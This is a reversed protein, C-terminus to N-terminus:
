IYSRCPLTHTRSHMKMAGPTAYQKHCLRCTFGGARTDNAAGLACCPQGSYDTGDVQRQRHDIGGLDDADGTCFRRYERMQELLRRAADFVAASGTDALTGAASITTSAATSMSSFGSSDRSWNVLNNTPRRNSDVALAMDTSPQDCVTYHGAIVAPLQPSPPRGDMVSQHIRTRSDSHITFHVGITSSVLRKWLQVRYLALLQLPLPPPLTAVSSQCVSWPTTAARCQMAQWSALRCPGATDRAKSQQQQQQHHHHNPLLHRLEATLDDESRESLTVLSDNSTSQLGSVSSSTHVNAPYLLLSREDVCVDSSSRRGCQSKM